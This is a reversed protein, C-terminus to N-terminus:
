AIDESMPHPIRHRELIRPNAKEAEWKDLVIVRDDDLDIRVFRSTSELEILHRLHKLNTVKTGNVSHVQLDAFGQYGTNVDDLLVQSLIVVQAHSTTALGNLAIDCLKRPSSNIWDEGYEHLYPQTLPTFLLGAYVYYSPQQDYQHVPVLNHVPRMVAELELAKGDRLVGLKAKDGPRKLSVLVDFAVQEQRRWKITGNNAIPTEDFSFIVDYKKLVGAAASLPQISNVLVGSMRDPIRLYRRLQRNEISQCKVGLSCYGVYKGLTKVDDLFRQIIPVPIIYGINDAHQLNQFAVGVVKDGLLAPGGSNGGNIAADIQIALLSSAAHVYQTPEVRSVVGGTISLNDGGQPFGIVSINEQLDPIDGFELGQPHNDWFEQDTVRLVALDCEHGVAEVVAKHKQATGHRRVLVFSHDSVVHANTLIRNGDVVFGSGTSERQPKQQWPMFYNPRSHVTFVKVISDLVRDVDAEKVEEADQSRTCEVFLRCPTRPRVRIVQSALRAAARRMMRTSQDHRNQSGKEAVIGTKHRSASKGLRAWQGAWRTHLAM